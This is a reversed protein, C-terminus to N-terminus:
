LGMAQATALWQPVLSHKTARYETQLDCSDTVLLEEWGAFDIQKTASGVAIPSCYHGTSGSADRTDKLYTM